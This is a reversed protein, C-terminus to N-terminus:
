CDRSVAPRINLAGRVSCDIQARTLGIDKLERDSLSKLYAITAEQIRWARYVDWGHKLASAIRGLFECTASRGAASTSMNTSM